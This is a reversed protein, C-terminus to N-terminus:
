DDEEAGQQLPVSHCLGGAKSLLVQAVSHLVQGVHSRIAPGVIRYFPINEFKPMTHISMGAPIGTIGSIFITFFEHLNNNQAIVVPLMVMKVSRNQYEFYVNRVSEHRTRAKQHLKFREEEEVMTRVYDWATQEYIGWPEIEKVGEIVSPSLPVANECSTKIEEM